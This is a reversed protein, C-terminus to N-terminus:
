QIKVLPYECFGQDITMRKNPAYSLCKSIISKWPKPIKDPTKLMSKRMVLMWTIDMGDWNGPFNYRIRILERIINGFAFVDCAKWCIVTDDARTLLEPSMYNCTGLVAM